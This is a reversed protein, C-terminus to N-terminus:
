SHTTIKRKWIVQKRIPTVVRTCRITRTITCTRPAVRRDLEYDLEYTEGNFSITLTVEPTNTECATAMAVCGALSTTALVGCIVKKMINKSM